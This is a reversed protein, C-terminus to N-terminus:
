NAFRAVFIDNAGEVTTEGASDEALTLARGFAGAVLMSGDPLPALDTVTEGEPGALRQAWRLEGCREYVALWGESYRDDDSAGALFVDDDGFTAGHKYSGVAALAGDPLFQLDNLHDTSLGGDQAIWELGGSPDLIALFVDESYALATLITEHPTLYPIRITGDFFGGIAISGDAASALGSVYGNGGRTLTRASVLTGDPDFEALFATSATPFTDPYLTTELPEGPGFVAPFLSVDGGVLIRDGPLVTARWPTVRGSGGTARAWIVRGSTGDFRALFMHDVYEGDQVLTTEDPRGCGFTTTGMMEGFVVISGDSLRVLGRIGECDIGVTGEVWTLAGDPALRALFGIGMEPITFTGERGITTESPEGAGFVTIGQVTGAAFVADEAPAVVRVIDAWTSGFGRAWVLSGDDRYRAVFGDAYAVAELITEYEEGRGFTAADRFLGGLVFSGDPWAAIDGVGDAHPGGATVVWRLAGTPPPVDPDADPCAHERGDADSEAGADPWADWETREDDPVDGTGDTRVDSGGDTRVDGGADPEREVRCLSDCGDGDARNGDDCDEEPALVGDGCAVVLRVPPEGCAASLGLLRLAVISPWARGSAM